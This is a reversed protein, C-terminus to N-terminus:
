SNLPKNRIKSLVADIVPICIIFGASLYVFLNGIYSYLTRRSLMYVDGIAYGETLETCIDMIEGKPSIITSIGTNAARLLYRGNEVARFVSQANHMYLARSDKFWSDNTAICILEGGERVSELLVNEYISDFCIGVSVSGYETDIPSSTEGFLIDRDLMQIESLPPILTMILEEMPVYEGFPVLHQKAYIDEGYTGDPYVAFCSNYVGDSEGETFTSILLTIGCERALRSIRTTMGYNNNFFSYPLATEPWLVIQAGEEAAMRTYKEYVEVTALYQDVGSEWKEDADINGQVAAVKISDKDSRIPINAYIAGFVTNAVVIGVCVVSILRTHETNLVAYGIYANVLVILFTVFYSGFLSASQITYIYSSQGLCLRAWPVGWWGVTQWWEVIVYLFAFILPLLVKYRKLTVGRALVGFLVFSLASMLSQFLSLGFMALIVVFAAAGKSLGAFEMPYMYLFWHFAVAYYSWFYVIGYFYLQRKRIAINCTCAYLFMLCPIMSVWQLFGLRSFVTPLATLCGSLILLPYRYKFIKNKDVFISGTMTDGISRQYPM